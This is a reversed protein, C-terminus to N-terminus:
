HKEAFCHVLKVIMVNSDSGAGLCCAMNTVWDKLVFRKALIIYLDIFSVAKSLSQVVMNKVALAKLLVDWELVAETLIENRVGSNYTCFFTYDSEEVLECLEVLTLSLLKNVRVGISVDVDSFYAATSDHASVSGLDKVLGDTLLNEALVQEFTRLGYLEPHYVAENSFNRALNAKLKLGKRLM